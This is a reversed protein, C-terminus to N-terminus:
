DEINYPILCSMKIEKELQTKQKKIKIRNLENAIYQMKEELKDRERQIQLIKEKLLGEQLNPLFDDCIHASVYEHIWNTRQRATSIKRYINYAKETLIITLRRNAAKNTKRPRGKRPM